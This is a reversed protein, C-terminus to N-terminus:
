RLPELLVSLIRRAYTVCYEGSRIKLGPDFSNICRPTGKRSCPFFTAPCNTEDYNQIRTICSRRNRHPEGKKRYSLVPAGYRETNCLEMVLRMVNNCSLSANTNFCVEFILRRVKQAVVAVIVAPVKQGPRECFASASGVFRNRSFYM